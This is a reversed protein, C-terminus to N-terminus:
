QILIKSGNMNAIMYFVVLIKSKIETINKINKCIDDTDNSYEIFAKSDNLHKLGTRERKNILFQDNAKYLDRVYIYIKIM